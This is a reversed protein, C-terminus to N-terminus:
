YRGTEWARATRAVPAAPKEVSTSEVTQRLVSQTKKLPPLLAIEVPASFDYAGENLEIPIISEAFNDNATSVALEGTAPSDYWIHPDEIGPVLPLDSSAIKVDANLAPLREEKSVLNVQRQFSGWARQDSLKLEYATPGIRDTVTIKATSNSSAAIADLALRETTTVGPYADRARSPLLSHSLANRDVPYVAIPENPLKGVAVDEIRETRTSMVIGAVVATLGILKAPVSSRKTHIM